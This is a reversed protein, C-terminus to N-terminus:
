QDIFKSGGVVVGVSQGSNVVHINVSITTPGDENITVTGLNFSAAYNPTTSPGLSVNLTDTSKINATVNGLPVQVFGGGIAVWTQDVPAISYSINTTISVSL